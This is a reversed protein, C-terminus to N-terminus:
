SYYVEKDLTKETADVMLTIACDGTINITTRVMDLVRDVGLLLGIGEIPLGVSHLVMGMFIISGSPIGAAGISGLTCTLLLVAYDTSQLEIGFFQAFFLACIGLYIATGDMNICAGLPLLCSAVIVAALLQRM